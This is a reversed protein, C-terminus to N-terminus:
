RMFAYSSSRLWRPLVQTIRSTAIRTATSTLAGCTIARPPRGFADAPMAPSGAPWGTIPLTLSPTM